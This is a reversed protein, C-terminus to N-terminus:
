TRYIDCLWASNKGDSHMALNLYVDIHGWSGQFFLMIYSYKELTM